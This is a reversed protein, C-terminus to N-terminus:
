FHLLDIERVKHFRPDVTWQVANRFERFTLPSRCIPLFTNIQYAIRMKRNKSINNWIQIKLDKAAIKINYNGPWFDSIFYFFLFLFFFKTVISFPIYNDIILNTYFHNLNPYRNPSPLTFPYPDTNLVSIMRIQESKM